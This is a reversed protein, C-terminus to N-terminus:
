FFSATKNRILITIITPSKLCQLYLKFMLVTSVYLPLYFVTSYRFTLNFVTSYKFLLFQVTSLNLTFFTCYKILFFFVPMM